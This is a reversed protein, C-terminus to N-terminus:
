PAHQRASRWRQKCAASQARWSSRRRSSRASQQRWAYPLALSAQMRRHWLMAQYSSKLAECAGANACGRPALRAPERLLPGRALLARVRAHERTAAAHV